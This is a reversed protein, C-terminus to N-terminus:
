GISGWHQRLKSRECLEVKLDSCRGESTLYIRTASQPCGANGDIGWSLCVFLSKLDSAKGLSPWDQRFLVLKKPLTKGLYMDPYRSSWCCQRNQSSRSWRGSLLFLFMLFKLNSRVPNFSKFGRTKQCHWQTAAALYVTLGTWGFTHAVTTGAFMPELFLRSCVMTKNESWAELSAQQLVMLIWVFRIPPRPRVPSTFSFGFLSACLGMPSCVEGFIVTDVSPRFSRRDFRNCHGWNTSEAIVGTPRLFRPSFRRIDRLHLPTVQSQFITFCIQM